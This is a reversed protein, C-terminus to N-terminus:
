FNIRYKETSKRLTKLFTEGLNKEVSKKNIKPINENYFNHIYTHTHTHIKKNLLYKECKTQQQQQQQM